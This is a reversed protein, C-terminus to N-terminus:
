KKRAAAKKPKAAAKKKPAATKKKAAVKKKGSLIRSVLSKAEEKSPLHISKAKANMAGLATGIARAADNLTNTKTAM